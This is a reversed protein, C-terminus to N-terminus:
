KRIKENLSNIEEDTMGAYKMLANYFEPNKVCDRVDMNSFPKMVDRLGDSFIPIDSIDSPKPHQSKNFEEYLIEFHPMIDQFYNNLDDSNGGSIIFSKCAMQFLVTSLMAYYEQTEDNKFFVNIKKAVKKYLFDFEPINEEEMNEGQLTHNLKLKSM